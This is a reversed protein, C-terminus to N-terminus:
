FIYIKAIIILFLVLLIYSIDRIRKSNNKKNAIEYRSKASQYDKEIDYNKHMEKYLMSGDVNSTIDENWVSETFEVFSKEVKSFSKEKFEYKVKELFIKEIYYLYIHIYINTKM